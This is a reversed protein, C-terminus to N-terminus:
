NELKFDIWDSLHDKAESLAIVAATLFHHAGLKEIHQILELIESEEKTMLETQIRRPIKNM